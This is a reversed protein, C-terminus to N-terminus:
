LIIHFIWSPLPFISKKKIRFNWYECRDLSMINCSSFPTFLCYTLLNSLTPAPVPCLYEMKDEGQNFQLNGPPRKFRQATSSFQCWTWCVFKNNNNVSLSPCKEYLPPSVIGQFLKGILCSTQTEGQMHEGINQM